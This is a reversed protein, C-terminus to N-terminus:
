NNRLALQAAHAVDPDDDNALRGAIAAIRGGGIQGLSDLAAIRVHNFKENEVVKELAAVSDESRCRGLARASFYRVWVDEDSLAEILPSIVQPADMNGLARAAAARVNATEDRIAEALVEFVREDDLYPLHELAACRV